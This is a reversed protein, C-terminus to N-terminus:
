IEYHGIQSYASNGKKKKLFGKVKVRGEGRRSHRKLSVKFPMKPADRIGSVESNGGKIQKVTLYEEYL